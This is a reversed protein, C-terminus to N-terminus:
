LCQDEKIEGDVLRIVRPAMAIVSPDHSALIISVEKDKNLSVLLEMLEHATKQDVSATPEDAIIVKPTTTVM